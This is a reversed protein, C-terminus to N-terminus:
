RSKAIKSLISSFLYRKLYTLIKRWGVIDDKTFIPEKTKPDLLALVLAEARLGKMNVSQSKKGVNTARKQIMDEFQDREAGSFRKIGVTVNWEKVEEEVIECDNAQLIMGKLDM